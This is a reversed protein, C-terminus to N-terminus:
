SALAIIDAKRDVLDRPKITLKSELSVTDNGGEKMFQKLSTEDYSMPIIIKPDFSLALKHAEAPLLYESSVPVFVIDVEEINELATSPIEKSTLAGLFLVKMDDFTFYYLANILDEKKIKTKTQLGQVFNGLIEYSGPGDIIFPEKEGYTVNEIGNFDPHNTTVLVADAGFKSPKEKGASSSIPNCAIVTDGAQLKFFQKGHYTIIM